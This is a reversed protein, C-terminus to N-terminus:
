IKIKYEKSYLSYKKKNATKRYTRLKFYLTVGGKQYLLRFRQNRKQISPNKLSLNQYSRNKKVYVQLANGQYQKLKIEIYRQGTATKTKSFSAIPPKLISIKIKKSTDRQQKLAASLSSALAEGKKYPLVQYYYSRGAKVNNDTYFTKKCNKTLMQYTGKKSSSRYIAYADADPHKEWSLKCSFNYSTSQVVHLSKVSYVKAPIPIPTRSPAVTNQPTPIASNQPIPTAVDQPAPTASNQPTPSVTEIPPILVTGEPFEEISPNVFSDVDDTGRGFFHYTYTDNLCREVEESTMLYDSYMVLTQTGGPEVNGFNGPVMFTINAYKDYFCLWWYKTPVYSSSRNIISVRFCICGEPSQTFSAGYLHLGCYYRDAYLPLQKEAEEAHAAHFGSVLLLFFAFIIYFIGRNRIHKM